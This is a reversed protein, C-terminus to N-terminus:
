HTADLSFRSRVGYGTIVLRDRARTSAVYFLCRERLEHEEPGDTAPDRERLAQINANMWCRNLDAALYRREEALARLNGAVAVFEGRIPPQTAELARIVREAALAGAPENGHLGGCVMLTPGATGQTYRGVVRRFGVGEPTTAVTGTM